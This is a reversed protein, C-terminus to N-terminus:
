RRRRGARWGWGAPAWRGRYTVNHKNKCDMNEIKSYNLNLAGFVGNTTDVGAQVLATSLDERLLLARSGGHESDLGVERDGLGEAEVSLEALVGSSLGEGLGHEVM